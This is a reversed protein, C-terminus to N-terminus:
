SKLACLYIKDYRLLLAFAMRSKQLHRGDAIEFKQFNLIKVALITRLTMKRWKNFKTGMLWVKAMKSKKIHRGNATKFKYDMQEPGGM